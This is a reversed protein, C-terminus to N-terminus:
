RRLFEILASQKMEEQTGDRMCKVTVTHNKQENEGIMIVHAAGLKDAKRMMAKVSQDDLLIETCLGHALLENAVLLALQQQARSLPLIVQLAPLTPLPLKDKCQELLLLLREIGIAAGVSPYDQAGGLETALSDYRGGGCFASQAGLNASSFEFVTKNYYDLGRVLSPTVQYTVSLLDLAEQVHAWEGACMSCLHNLLRPATRYINQCVDSKCDFVRLINKEKRERCTSCIAAAASSELFEKLVKKYAARDDRCGLFNLLVVYNNLNFVEHFLRDFMKIVQVDHMVSEAGIIEVSVQSFQRYRGKQPREYRFMPGHVFVKWPTQQVGNELFARVVSATAEPRLCISETEEPDRNAMVFMEKSVVDTQLGLSRQFLETTEILPTAIEQFHYTALHKKITQVAFNSLTLDLIDQTGKVRTLM